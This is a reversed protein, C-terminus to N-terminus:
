NDMKQYQKGNFSVDTGTCLWETLDKIQSEDVQPNKISGTYPIRLKETHGDAFAVHAFLNRGNVHNAGIIEHGSDSSNAGEGGISSDTSSYQLVADDDTSTGTGDPLWSHWPKFPIESFLLVRDARELEGFKQWSFKKNM